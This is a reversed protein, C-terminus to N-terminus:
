ELVDEGNTDVDLCQKSCYPKGYKEVSKDYLDKSIVKGCVSCKYQVENSVPIVNEIRLCPVAEGAVRTITAFVQIKKGVWSYVDGTGYLKEIAKCNTVNLVMPLVNEEFYAVPKQEVEGNSSTVNESKVEKITLVKREKPQFCEARLHTLDTLNRWHLVKQEM